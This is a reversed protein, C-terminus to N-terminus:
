PVRRRIRPLVLLAPVGLAVTLWFYETYGLREAAWGSGMGAVSRSAGFLATLLAYETAANERECIAMLFALFAAIGLGGAFSETIAAAYLGGRGAGTMSVIAYGANSAIQAAGLILLGRYMGVRSVFAGGALAGLITFTVGVTTTITGIEAASFGRDVWYPKTMPALSNDGLRYLVIFLVLWGADVRATWTKLGNLLERGSRYTRDSEPLALSILAVALAAAAAAFFAGRWTIWAALAAMGGGACIIAVRYATVRTSNVPGLLSPPTVQITFADVALDQTASALALATVLMWFLAGGTPQFVGFAGLILAISAAAAVIWRRYTGRLDVLPAWLLKFTWAFGVVSLLGIDTLSAGHARLYLPFLETVVGYPLGESFYLLAAFAIIAGHARRSLL